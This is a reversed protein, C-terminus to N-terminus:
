KRRRELKGAAGTWGKAARAFAPYGHERIYLVAAKYRSYKYGKAFFGQATPCTDLEPCDACTVYGRGLCCKKIACRARALVRTGDAYGDSCGKCAAGYVRCTACYAGCCGFGRAEGLGPRVARLTHTAGWRRLVRVECFGARELCEAEHEPTLPTDFHCLAGEPVGEAQRLRLYEARRAAEEEDSLAFYDTLIFAGGPRLAERLRRYLPLKEEASFHHLSEVSVAADYAASGLPVDFYSGLVTRVNRGPFKEALRKLMGPALDIGTVAAEPNLAFYEELELGTGCGLDLVACGPERPLQEATFRLFERASDICELQHADYEELRSDFFDEMRELM